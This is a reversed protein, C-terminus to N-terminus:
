ACIKRDEELEAMTEVLQLQYFHVNAFDNKGHVNRAGAYRCLRAYESRSGTRGTCSYPVRFPIVILRTLIHAPVFFIHPSSGCARRPTEMTVSLALTRRYARMNELKATRFSRGRPRSKDKSSFSSLFFFM